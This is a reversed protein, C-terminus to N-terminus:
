RYLHSAGLGELLQSVKGADAAGGVPAHTRVGRRALRALRARADGAQLDGLRDAGVAGDAAGLDDVRAVALEISMSPLGREGILWPVSHGM